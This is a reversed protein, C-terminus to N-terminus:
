WILGEGRNSVWEREGHKGLIWCSVAYHM